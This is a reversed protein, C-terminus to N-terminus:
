RAALLIAREPCQAAAREVLEVLEEPIRDVTLEAYGDGTLAFADPCVTVCAGHGACRESDISVTTM